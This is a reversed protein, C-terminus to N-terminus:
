PADREFHPQFDYPVLKDCFYASTFMDTRVTDRPRRYVTGGLASMATDIPVTWDESVEAIVASQGDAINLGAEQGAQEREVSKVRDGIFGIIGGTAAGIGIGAAVPAAMLGLLAGVGVGVATRLGPDTHKTAVQIRGSRDRRIVAAGHVTIEGRDDLGWLEHLGDAAQADTDFVVAVYNDKPTAFRRPQGEM